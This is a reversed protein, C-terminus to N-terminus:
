RPVFLTRLEFTRRGDKEQWLLHDPDPLMETVELEGAKGLWRHFIELFLYSELDIFVPKTDKDRGEAGSRRLAQESPRIYIHRPLGRQVRLREIAVVLDRSVGTFDGAGLEEATITWSRRQVVVKGCRLRPTNKGLSFGFPHFGLPIIWNRAFSGLYEGTGRRRLGVDGNADDVFVEVEAPPVTWWSPNPRQPAVFSSRGPLADFLHVATTATFDAVYIGFHPSPQDGVIKTLAANLMEKDPCSWYFGHHLLAAPPHAEAFIWQYDGQEVAAVSTASLQLDASPYTYEDFPPFQFNKRVFHCDDATLETEALDARDAFREGFKQRVEQYALHALVVLGPGTLSMKAEACTRLFAPLPAAGNQLPTKQLLGRLGAAVRSAVFAFNDRWLDIWPAAEVAVESILKEGIVFETKRFCEEGIANTASYLFRTASKHTGLKELEAAAEDILAIRAAIDTNTAFKKPLEAIHELRELWRKRAAGERWGRVDTVLQAFAYPDLAPVELEWRLLNERACAALTEPDIGLSHAPIDGVRCAELAAFTQPDLNKTEGTDTFIFQRGELRGLPNLRPALEIRVEPDANVAAAAGHATWRELFTERAAIGPEPHFHIGAVQPDIAGWGEPGFASLSDNKASIRQLYLLLHREDARAQKNRPPLPATTAALQRIVRDRVGASA